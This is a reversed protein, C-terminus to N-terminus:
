DTETRTTFDQAGHLFIMEPAPLIRARLNHRLPRMALLLFGRRSLRPPVLHESHTGVEKRREDRDKEREKGEQGEEREKGEKRDEHRRTQRWRRSPCLRLLVDLGLPSPCVDVRAAEENHLAGKFAEHKCVFVQSEDFRSTWTSSNYELPCPKELGCPCEGGAPVLTGAM